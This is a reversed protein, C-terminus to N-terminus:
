GPAAGFHDEHRGLRQEQNGLFGLGWVRLRWAGCWTSGRSAWTTTGLPGQFGLCGPAAGACGRPMCRTSGRSAWTATGSQGVAWYGLGFDALHRVQNIGTVGLDNNGVAGVVGSVFTGHGNQDQVDGDKGGNVFDAGYVDDVIGAGCALGAHLASPM